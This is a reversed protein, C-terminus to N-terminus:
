LPIIKPQNSQPNFSAAKAATSFRDCHDGGTQSSQPSEFGLSITPSRIAAPRAPRFPPSTTVNFRPAQHIQFAGPM